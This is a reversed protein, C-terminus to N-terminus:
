DNASGTTSMSLVTHKIGKIALLEKHLGKVKEVKGKVIINEMCNNHDLHAHQSCIVIDGFNHQAEILKQVLSSKHHDYIMTIVGAVIDGCSWEYQVLASRILHKIAESRTPLGQQESIADFRNIIDNEISISIRTLQSM